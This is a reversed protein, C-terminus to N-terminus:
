RSLIALLRLDLILLAIGHAAIAVGAGVGGYRRGLLWACVAICLGVLVVGTELGATYWTWREFRSAAAVDRMAVSRWRALAVLAEAGGWLAMQLAFHLLLPSAGARRRSVLAGTAGLIFAAAGWVALYVVYQQEAALVTDAWM